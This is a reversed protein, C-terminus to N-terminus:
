GVNLLWIDTAILTSGRSTKKSINLNLNQIHATLWYGKDDKQWGKKPPEPQANSNTLRYIYFYPQGAYLWREDHSNISIGNYAYNCHIINDSDVFM